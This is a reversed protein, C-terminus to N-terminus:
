IISQIIGEEDEQLALSCPRSEVMVGGHKWEPTLVVMPDSPVPEALKAEQRSRQEPQNESNFWFQM